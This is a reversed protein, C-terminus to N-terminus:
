FNKPKRTFTCKFRVTKEKEEGEWENLLFEIPFLIEDLPFYLGNHIEGIFNL